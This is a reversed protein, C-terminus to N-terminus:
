TNLEQTYEELDSELLLSEFEPKLKVDLCLSSYSSM